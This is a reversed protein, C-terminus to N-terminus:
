WVEFSTVDEGTREKIRARMEQQMQELLEQKKRKHERMRRWIEEKTLRYREAKENAARIGCYLCNNKCYNSFEILGRIFIDNSYIEKRKEVAKDFLYEEEPSDTQCDILTKLEADPLNHKAFLEDTLDNM